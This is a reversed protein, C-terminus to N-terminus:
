REPTPLGAVNMVRLRANRQPGLLPRLISHNEVVMIPQFSLEERENSPDACWSRISGGFYPRFAM